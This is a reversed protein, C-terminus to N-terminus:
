QKVQNKLLQDFQFRSEGQKVTQSSPTELFYLVWSKKKKEELFVVSLLQSSVDRRVSIFIHDKKM